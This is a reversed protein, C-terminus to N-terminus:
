HGIKKTLREAAVSALKSRVTEEKTFTVQACVDSGKMMESAWVLGNNLRDLRPNDIQDPDGCIVIKTGEGARTIIELIQGVTSNQAEDVILYSNTISRGRMYAVACIEITQRDFLDEIQERAEEASGNEYGKFLSELNDMFPAVLPGMKEELSGPLFGMDADSLTNTRTIMVKDFDGELTQDLGAALSLFTKATGAAGKVIVLPIEEVPATLADLVMRQGNNRAKVEMPHLNKNLLKFTYEGDEKSICRGVVQGGNNDSFVAYENLEFQLSNFLDKPLYKSLAFTKDKQNDIKYLKELTKTSVEVEQRGTYYNDTELQENRYGQVNLGCVEANVRMAIDNTILTVNSKVDGLKGKKRESAVEAHVLSLTSNIIRNDPKDLSFGKPLHSESTGNPEVRFTGNKSGNKNIAIGELLNGEKSLQSIVRIAERAKFGTEGSANKLGDLEQLTTATIVVNNDDFGFVANPSQILINTDLVYTKKDKKNAM